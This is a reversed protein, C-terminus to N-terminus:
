IFRKTENTEDKETVEGHETYRLFVVRRSITVSPSHVTRSACSLGDQFHRAWHNPAWSPGYTGPALTIKFITSSLTMSTAQLSNADMVLQKSSLHIWRYTAKTVLYYLHEVM